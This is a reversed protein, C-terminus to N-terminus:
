VIDGDNRSFEDRIGGLTLRLTHSNNEIATRLITLQGHSLAQKGTDERARLGRVPM